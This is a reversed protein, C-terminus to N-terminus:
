ALEKAILIIGTAIAGLGVSLVAIAKRQNADYADEAKDYDEGFLYDEPDWSYPHIHKNHKGAQKGPTLLSGTRYAKEYEFRKAEIQCEREDVYLATDELAEQIELPVPVYGSGTRREEPTERPCCTREYTVRKYPDKYFLSKMGARIGDLNDLSVTSAKTLLNDM